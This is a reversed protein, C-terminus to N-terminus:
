RRAAGARPAPGPGHAVPERRKPDLRTKQGLEADPVQEREGEVFVQHALRGLLEHMVHQRAAEAHAVHHDAEIEPEAVLPRAIGLAQSREAGFVVEAHRTDLRDCPVALDARRAPHALRNGAAVDAQRAVQEPM